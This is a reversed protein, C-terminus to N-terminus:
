WGNPNELDMGWYYKACAKLEWSSNEDVSIGHAKQCWGSAFFEVTTFTMAVVAILIFVVNILKAIPHKRNTNGTM